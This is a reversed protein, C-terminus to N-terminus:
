LYINSQDQSLTYLQGQVRNQLGETNRLTSYLQELAVIELMSSYTMWHWLLVTGIDLMSPIRGLGAYMCMHLSQPRLIEVISQARVLKGLDTASFTLRPREYSACRCVQEGTGSKTKRIGPLIRAESRFCTVRFVHAVLCAYEVNLFVWPCRWSVLACQGGAVGRCMPDRWDCLKSANLHM